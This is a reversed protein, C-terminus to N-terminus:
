IMSFSVSYSADILKKHFILLRLEPVLEVQRIEVISKFLSGTKKMTYLELAVKVFNNEINTSLM